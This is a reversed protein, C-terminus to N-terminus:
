SAAFGCLGSPYVLTGALLSAASPGVFMLESETFAECNNESFNYIVRAHEVPNGDVGHKYSFVWSLRAKVKGVTDMKSVPIFGDAGKTKDVFANMAM